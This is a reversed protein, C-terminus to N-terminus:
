PYHFSITLSFCVGDGQCANDLLGNQGSGSLVPQMKEFAGQLDKCLGLDRIHYVGYYKFRRKRVMSRM